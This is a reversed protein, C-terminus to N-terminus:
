QPHVPVWLDGAERVFIRETAQGARLVAVTHTEVKPVRLPARDTVRAKTPKSNSPSLLRAKTIGATKVVRNDRLNRTALIVKGKSEAQALAMREVQEPTLALTVTTVKVPKNGQMEVIQGAALVPVNQLIVKGVRESSRESRMSVVIDVRSNPQVFGSERVAEDVKITVGRLGEPVLMPLLGGLAAFEPDLLKARLLPEGVVLAARVVQGEAEALSRLAGQPVADKPWSSLRVHQGTVTEGVPMNVAAVVVQEGSQGALGVNQTITRYVLFATVIGIVSAIAVIVLLRRRM